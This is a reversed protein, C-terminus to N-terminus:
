ALPHAAFTCSGCGTYRHGDHCPPPPVGERNDLVLASVFSLRTLLELAVECNAFLVHVDVDALITRYGNEPRNVRTPGELPFMANFFLGPRAPLYSKTEAETGGLKSSGLPRKGQMLFVAEEEEFMPVDEDNVRPMNERGTYPVCHQLPHAAVEDYYHCPDFADRM